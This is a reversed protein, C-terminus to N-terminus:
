TVANSENVSNTNTDKHNIHAGFGYSYPTGAKNRPWDYFTELGKRISAKLM